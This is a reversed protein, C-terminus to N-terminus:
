FFPNNQPILSMSIMSAYLFNGFDKYNKLVKKEVINDDIKRFTEYNEIYEICSVKDFDILYIDNSFSKHTHGQVLECDYGDLKLVYHLFSFLKGIEFSLIIPDQISNNHSFDIHKIGKFHGVGYTIENKDEDQMDLQILLDRKTKIPLPPYIYEMEYQCYTDDVQYNSCRPIQIKIDTRALTEYILKHIEYEYHIHDCFTECQAKIKSCLCPKNPQIRNKFKKIVLEDNIKYISGHTGQGILTNDMNHKSTLNPKSNPIIKGHGKQIKKL